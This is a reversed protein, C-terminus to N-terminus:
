LCLIVISLYVYVKGVGDSQCGIAGARKRPGGSLLGDTAYCGECINGVCGGCVPLFNGEYRVIM